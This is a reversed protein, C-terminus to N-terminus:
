VQYYIFYVSPLLHNVAVCPLIVNRRVHDVFNRERRSPRAAGGVSTHLPTTQAKFVTRYKLRSLDALVVCLKHMNVSVDLLLSHYGRHLFVFTECLRIEFVGQYIFVHLDFLIVRSFVDLCIRGSKRGRSSSRGTEASKLALERLRLLARILKTM